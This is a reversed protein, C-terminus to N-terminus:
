EWCEFLSGFGPASEHIGVIRLADWFTAQIASVVPRGLSEELAAIAGITRLGTCSIFITDADKEVVSKAYDYTRDLPIDNLELNDSVGMGHAGSVEFGNAAFFAGGRTTVEDIYPGVFSIRKAGVAHLARLAATSTTSAPVGAMAAEMRKIVSEDYGIGRMFTASTGGFTVVDTHGRSGLMRAAVEIRDDDMMESLGEITADLLDVRATHVSVGEPAMAYFEPEMVLGEAPYVLGIKARWGYHDVLKTM